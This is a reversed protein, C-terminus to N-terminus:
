KRTHPWRWRWRNRALQGVRDKRETSINEIRGGGMGGMGGTEGGGERHNGRQWTALKM